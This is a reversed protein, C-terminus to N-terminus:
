TKRRRTTWGIVGLGLALMAYTEPEPAPSAVRPASTALVGGYGVRGSDSGAGPSFSDIVGGFLSLTYSGAQLDRFTFAYPSVTVPAGLRGGSLTASHLVIKQRSSWDWTFAVGLMDSATGLSFRYCDNFVAGRTNGFFAVNGSSLVGLSFSGTCRCPAATAPLCVFAALAMSAAATKFRM